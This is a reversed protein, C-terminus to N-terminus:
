RAGPRREGRLARLEELIIARIEAKLEADGIGGGPQGGPPASASARGGVWNFSYDIEGRPLRPRTHSVPLAIGSYDSFPAAKEYAVKTWQVLHQPGVNESVSSRGFYGTGVTMTPALFTDFGAAGASCGANVAIRLVNMEAGFRLIIEPATAHIAASHGAGHRRTMARCAAFAADRSPAVYFGLV